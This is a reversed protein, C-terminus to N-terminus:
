VLSMGLLGSAFGATTMRGAFLQGVLLFLCRAVALCSPQAEYSIFYIIEKLSDDLSLKM